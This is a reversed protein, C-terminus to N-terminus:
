ECEEKLLSTNIKYEKAVNVLAKNLAEGFVAHGEIYSPYHGFIEKFREMQSVIEKKVDDYQLVRKGTRYDSSPYFFGNEDVLTPIDKPNSCPKSLVLNTHQGIFLDPYDKSLKAAHEASEMNPMLTTSSVVGYNIAESMGFDDANIILKKM